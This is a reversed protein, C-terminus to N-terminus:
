KRFIFSCPTRGPLHAPSPGPSPAKLSARTSPLSQAARRPEARQSPAVPGFHRQRSGELPKERHGCYPAFERCPRRPERHDPGARRRSPCPAALERLGQFLGWRGVESARLDGQAPADLSDQAGAGAGLRFCGDAVWRPGLPRNGTRSPGGSHQQLGREGRVQVATGSM